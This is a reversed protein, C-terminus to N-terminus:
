TTRKFDKRFFTRNFSKDELFNLPGKLIKELFLEILVKIKWFLEKQEWKNLGLKILLRRTLHFIGTNLFHWELVECNFEKIWDQLEQPIIGGEWPSEGKGKEMTKRQPERLFIYGGNKLFRVTNKFTRKPFEDHHLAGLFCIFDFTKQPFKVEGMPENIFIGEPVNKKAAVLLKKSIDVGIYTDGKRMRPVVNRKIGEATGCGLDLMAWKKRKPLYKKFFILEEPIYWILDRKSRRILFDAKKEHYELEEQIHKSIKKLNLM